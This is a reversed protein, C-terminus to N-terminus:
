ALYGAFNAQSIVKNLNTYLVLQLPTALIKSFPTSDYIFFPAFRGIKLVCLASIKKGSAVGRILSTMILKDALTPRPQVKTQM